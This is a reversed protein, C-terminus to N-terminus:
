FSVFNTGRETHCRLFKYNLRTQPDLSIGGLGGREDDKWSHFRAINIFSHQLQKRGRNRLRAESHIYAQPKRVIELARNLTFQKGALAMWCLEAKELSLANKWSHFITKTNYSSLWRPALFATACNVGTILRLTASLRPLATPKPEFHAAFVVNILRLRSNLSIEIIEESWEFDGWFRLPILASTQRGTFWGAYLRHHALTNKTTGRWISFSLVVFSRM